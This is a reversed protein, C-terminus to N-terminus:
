DEKMGKAYLIVDFNDIVETTEEGPPVDIEEVSDIEYDDGERTEYDVEGSLALETAEDEDNAEVVCTSYSRCWVTVKFKRM